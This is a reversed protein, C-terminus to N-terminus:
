FSNYCASLDNMIKSFKMKIKLINRFYSVLQKVDTEMIVQSATVSSETTTDWRVARNMAM